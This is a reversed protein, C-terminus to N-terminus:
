SDCRPFFFCCIIKPVNRRVCTLWRSIQCINPAISSDETGSQPQITWPVFSMTWAHLEGVFPSSINIFALMSTYRNVKQQHPRFSPADWRFPFASSLLATNGRMEKITTSNDAQCVASLQMRSGLAASILGERLGQERGQRWECWLMQSLKGPNNAHKAPSAFPHAPPIWSVACPAPQQKKAQTSKLEWWRGTEEQTIVQTSSVWNDM